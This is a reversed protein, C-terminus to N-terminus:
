VKQLVHNGSVDTQLNGQSKGSSKLSKGELFSVNHCDFQGSISSGAKLPIVDSINKLFIETKGTVFYFERVKLFKIKGHWKRVM